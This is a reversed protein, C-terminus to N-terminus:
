IRMKSKCSCTQLRSACVDVIERQLLCEQSHRHRSERCSGGCAAKSADIFRRADCRSETHTSLGIKWHLFLPAVAIMASLRLDRKDKMKTSAEPQAQWQSPRQGEAALASNIELWMSSFSNVVAIKEAKNWPRPLCRFIAKNPEEAFSPFREDPGWHLLDVWLATRAQCWRSGGKWQEM